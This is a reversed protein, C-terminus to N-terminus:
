RRLVTVIVPREGVNGARVTAEVFVIVFVRVTVTVSGTVTVTMSVTVSSPLGGFGSGQTPGPGRSLGASPNVQAPRAKDRPLQWRRTGQAPAADPGGRSRYPSPWRAPVLTPAKTRRNAGPCQRTMGVWRLGGETGRGVACTTRLRKKFGRAPALTALKPAAGTQRLPVAEHRPSRWIVSGQRLVWRHPPNDPGLWPVPHGAGDM